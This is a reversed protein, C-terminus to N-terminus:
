GCNLILTVKSTIVEFQYTAWARAFSEMGHIYPIYILSLTACWFPLWLVSFPPFHTTSSGLSLCLFPIQPPYSWSANFVHIANAFLLNTKFFPLTQANDMPLCFVAAPFSIFACFHGQSHVFGSVRSRLIVELDWGLPIAWQLFGVTFQKKKKNNKIQCMLVSGIVLHGLLPFGPYVTIWCWICLPKLAAEMLTGPIQRGVLRPYISDAGQFAVNFNYCQAGM